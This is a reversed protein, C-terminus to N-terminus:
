LITAMNTLAVPSSGAFEGCARSKNRPWRSHRTLRQKVMRWASLNLPLGSICSPSSRAQWGPLGIPSYSNSLNTFHPSDRLNMRLLKNVRLM